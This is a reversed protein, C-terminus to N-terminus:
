TEDPVPDVGPADAPEDDAPAAPSVRRRVAEGGLLVPLILLLAQGVDQENVVVGLKAGVFVVVAALVTVVRAPERQWVGLLAQYARDLIAKMRPEKYTNGEIHIVPQAM